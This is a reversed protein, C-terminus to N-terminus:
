VDTAGGDAAQCLEGELRALADQVRQGNVPTMHYSDIFGTPSGGFSRIDTYDYVEIGAPCAALAAQLSAQRLPEFGPMAQVWALTGPEFPPLVVQVRTGQKALQVLAATVVGALRQDPTVAHDYMPRLLTRNLDEIEGALDYTGNAIEDDVTAFGPVYQGREDFGHYTPVPYGTVYTYQLVRATDVLYPVSLSPLLRSADRTWPLPPGGVVDYAESREFRLHEQPRLAFQDLAYIVHAPPGQQAQVYALTIAVAEVEGGPFAINFSAHDPVQSPGRIAMGRSTGVVVAAPREPLDEYRQLKEMPWDPVLPQYAGSKFESRPDVVANAAACASLALLCAALTVAVFPRAGDGGPPLALKAIAAPREPPDAAVEEGAV